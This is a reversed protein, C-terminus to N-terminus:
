HNLINMNEDSHHDEFMDKNLEKVIKQEDYM